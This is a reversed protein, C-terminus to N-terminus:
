FFFYVCFWVLCFARGRMGPALQSALGPNTVPLCSAQTVRLLRLRERTVCVVAVVLRAARNTAPAPRRGRRGSTICANCRVWPSYALAAAAAAALDLRFGDRHSGADLAVSAHTRALLRQSSHSCSRTCPHNGARTHARKEQHQPRLLFSHGRSDSSTCVLRQLHLFTWHTFNSPLGVSLM